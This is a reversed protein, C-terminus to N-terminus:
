GEREVNHLRGRTVVLKVARLAAISQLPDADVVLLDADFGPALSGTRERLGVAGTAETTALTLMRERPFGLHEFLEPSGAFDDFPADPIGADTGAILPM